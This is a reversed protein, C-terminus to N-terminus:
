EDSGVLLEDNQDVAQDIMLQSCGAATVQTRGGGGRGTTVWGASVRRQLCRIV